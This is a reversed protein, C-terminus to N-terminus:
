ILRDDRWKYVTIHSKVLIYMNLVRDREFLKAFADICVFFNLVVVVVVVSCKFLYLHLRRKYINFPYSPTFALRRYIM